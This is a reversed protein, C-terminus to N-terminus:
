APIHILAAQAFQKLLACSQGNWGLEHYARGGSLLVMLQSTTKGDNTIVSCYARGPLGTLESGQGTATLENVESQADVAFSGPSKLETTLMGSGSKYDCAQEVSGVQDGTKPSATVASADLIALAKDSAWDCPHFAPAATTDSPALSLTITDSPGVRTGAPPNMANITWAASPAPGQDTMVDHGDPALARLRDFCSLAGDAAQTLDLGTVPPLPRPRPQAACLQADSTPATIPSGGQAHNVACGALLLACGCVIYRAPM